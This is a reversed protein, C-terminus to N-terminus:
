VDVKANKILEEKEKESMDACGQEILTTIMKSIFDSRKEKPINPMIVELCRPMMEMMMEPMSPIQPEKGSGSMQSMVGKGGQSQMMRMMMQPMIEMMNIGEMMKPFMEEMMEKKDETSLDAFFKDMMQNLMSDKEEKSMRGMMYGMMKEIMSMTNEKRTPGKHRIIGTFNDQMVISESM